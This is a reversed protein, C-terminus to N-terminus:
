YVDRFAGSLLNTFLVLLEARLVAPPLLPTLRFAELTRFDEEPPNTITGSNWYSLFGKKPGCAACYRHRIVHSRPKEPVVRAWFEGCDGCFYHEARDPFERGPLDLTGLFTPEGATYRTYTVKM